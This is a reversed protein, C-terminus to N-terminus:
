AVAEDAELSIGEHLAHSDLVLWDGFSLSIGAASCHATWVALASNVIVLGYACALGVENARWWVAFWLACQVGFASVVLSADSVAAFRWANVIQTTM